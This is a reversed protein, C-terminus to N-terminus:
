RQTLWKVILREAARAQERAMKHPWGDASWQHKIYDYMADEIVGLLEAGMADDLRAHTVM